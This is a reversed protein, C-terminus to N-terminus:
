RLLSNAILFVAAKAKNLLGQKIHKLYAEFAAVADKGDSTIMDILENMSHPSWGLSVIWRANKVRSKVEAPM